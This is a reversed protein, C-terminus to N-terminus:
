AALLEIHPYDRFTEDDMNLDGDWDGGWRIAIGLQDALCQVYGMFHCFRETDEWDIPYPAIDVACSPFGNHKSHPWQLQSLGQAFLENQRAEGRHGEIISFDYYKIVENLLTQLDPHLTELRKLSAKGFSYV